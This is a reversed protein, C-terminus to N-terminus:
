NIKHQTVSKGTAHINDTSPLLLLLTLNTLTNKVIFTFNRLMKLSKKANAGNVFQIKYSNNQRNIGDHLKNFIHKLDSDSKPGVLTIKKRHEELREAKQRLYKMEKASKRAVNILEEKTM